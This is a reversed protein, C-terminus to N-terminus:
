FVFFEVLLCGYSTEEISYSEKASKDMYRIELIYLSESMVLQVSCYLESGSISVDFGLCRSQAIFNM